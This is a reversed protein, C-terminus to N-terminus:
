YISEYFRAVFYGVNVPVGKDNIRLSNRIVGYIRCCFFGRGMFKLNQMCTENSGIYCVNVWKIMSDITRLILLQRLAFTETNRYKTHGIEKVAKLIGLDIDEVGDDTKRRVM